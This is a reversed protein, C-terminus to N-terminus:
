ILLFVTKLWNGVGKSKLFHKNYDIENNQRQTTAPNFPLENEKPQILSIVKHNETKNTYQNAYPFIEELKKDDELKFNYVSKHM